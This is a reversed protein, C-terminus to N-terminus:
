RRHTVLAADYFSRFSRIPPGLAPAELACPTESDAFLLDREAFLSSSCEAVGM